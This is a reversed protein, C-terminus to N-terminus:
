KRALGGASLGKKRGMSENIGVVGCAGLARRGSEPLAEPVRVEEPFKFGISCMAPSNESLELGESSAEGSRIGTETGSVGPVSRACGLSFAVAEM